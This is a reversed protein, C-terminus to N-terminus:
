LDPWGSAAFVLPKHRFAARLEATLSVGSGSVDISWLNELEALPLLDKATVRPCRVLYLKKLNPLQRLYKVGEGIRTDSLSLIELSQLRAVDKLGDDTVGSGDLSLYTLKECPKLHVLGSGTLNPCGDLCLSELRVLSKLDEIGEDAIATSSLSLTKLDTLSGIAHLVLHTLKAHEDYVALHQLHTLRGVDALREEKLSEATSLFLSRLNKLGALGRIWKLGDTTHTNDLSVQLRQLSRMRGIQCLGNESVSVAAKRHGQWRLALEELGELAGLAQMGTDDAVGARRFRLVRLSSLAKLCAIEDGTFPQERYLDLWALSECKRLAEFDATTPEFLVLKAIKRLSQAADQAATALEGKKYVSPAQTGRSQPLRSVANGACSTLSLIIGLISLLVFRRLKKRGM